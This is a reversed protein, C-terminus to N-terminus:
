GVDRRRFATLGAAVLAAAIATLWILPSTSFDGGPLKPVHTFPSINLMWQDLQLLEGFQGLLVLLALAAWSGFAVLRPLVGYLAVSIGALVWVAPLQVLAAALIRPLEEGVDGSAIGYSLGAALGAAGLAVAPGVVAFLLHSALWRLRGVATALVPELRGGAEEGRPRLAAGIAYGSAVLGLIGMVLVFWKDALASSGGLREIVARLQPSDAGIKAATNGVSGLVGGLVAFGLTWALLTGRQLRWALGLPSQLAPSARAPGPRAPLLGAGLDRRTSLAYAVAVLVATAVAFLAFVWWRENAFPRVRQAWGVPSLWSIWDRESADGVARLLFSVGLVAISIGRAARASETVQAAVAAVAAFVSTKGAGPLSPQM